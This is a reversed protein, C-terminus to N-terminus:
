KVVSLPTSGLQARNRKLEKSIEMEQQISTLNKFNKDPALNHPPDTDTADLNDVEKGIRQKDLPTNMVIDAAEEEEERDPITALM